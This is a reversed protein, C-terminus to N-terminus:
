PMEGGLLHDRLATRLADLAADPPEAALREDLAALVEAVSREREWDRVGAPDAVEVAALGAERLLAAVRPTLATGAGVLPQGDGDVVPRALRM